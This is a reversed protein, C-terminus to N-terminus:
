NIVRVLKKNIVFGNETHIVINYIGSILINTNIQILNNNNIISINDIRKGLMDLVEIYTIKINGNINIYADSSTPNPYVDSIFGSFTEHLAPLSAEINTGSVTILVKFNDTNNEDLVVTAPIATLGPLEPHIKYEGLAINNFMFGGNADSFTFMLPTNNNADLLFILLNEYPNGSDLAKPLTSVVNGGINGPGNSPSTNSFSSLSINYFATSNSNLYILNAGTWYIVNGYYTPIYGSSTNSPTAVVFPYALVAYLGPLINNFCYVGNPNVTTTDIPTFFSTLSDISYLVVYVNNVTNTGATILGCLSNGTYVTDCYTSTCGSDTAITLCVNYYGNSTFTHIPNKITSHQGDNFDWYYSTINGVSTYSSDSFYVINAQNASTNAIFNAQCTFTSPGPINNPPCIYFDTILPSNTSVKTQSHFVNQCDNVGIEFLVQMSSSPLSVNDEYYGNNDTFVVNFYSFVGNTQQTSDVEIVVAVNAIPLQTSNNYVHGSIVVQANMSTQILVILLFVFISYIIKKM